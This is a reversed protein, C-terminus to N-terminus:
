MAKHFVLKNVIIIIVTYDRKFSVGFLPCREIFSLNQPGMFSQCYMKLSSLREIVTFNAPGLTDM